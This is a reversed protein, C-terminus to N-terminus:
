YHILVRFTLLSRDTKALIPFHGHAFLVHRGKEMPHISELVEVWLGIEGYANMGVAGDPIRMVFSATTSTPIEIRGDPLFYTGLLPPIPYAPDLLTTSVAMSMPTILFNITDGFGTTEAHNLPFINGTPVVSHNGTGPTVFDVYTPANLTTSLKFTNTTVNSIFYNTLAAVGTPLTGTTVFNVMMANSFGHNPLTIVDTVTNIDLPSFQFVRGALVNGTVVSRLRIRSSNFPDVDVNVLRYHRQDKSDLIADIINLVTQQITLGEVWHTGRSFSKGNLIIQDGSEWDSNDLVEIYGVSESANDAIPITHVPNLHQYGGRGIQWGLIRFLAEHGFKLRALLNRGEKSLTCSITDVPDLYAM